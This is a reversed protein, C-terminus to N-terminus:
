EKSSDAYFFQAKKKKKGVFRLPYEYNMIEIEWLWSM